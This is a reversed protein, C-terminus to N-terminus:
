IWVCGTHNTYIWFLTALNEVSFFRNSNLYSSWLLQVSRLIANGCNISYIGM